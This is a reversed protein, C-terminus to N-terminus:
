YFTIPKNNEMVSIIIPSIRDRHFSELPHTRDTGWYINSVGFNAGCESKLDAIKLSWMQSLKRVAEAKEELQSTTNPVYFPTMPIITIYKENDIKTLSSYDIGSYYGDCKCYKYLLKSILVNFAGCYTDTDSNSIDVTGIEVNVDNQGGLVTVFDAYPSLANVRSDMWMADGYETTGGSMKTGGIGHNYFYQLGFYDKVYKQFFGQGTISDGISDGIKNYWYNNLPKCDSLYFGSYNNGDSLQFINIYDITQNDVANIWVSSYKIRIYNANSMNSHSFNTLAFVNQAYYEINGEEDIHGISLSINSGYQHAFSNTTKMQWQYVVDDFLTHNFNSIINHGNIRFDKFTEGVVFDYDVKTNGSILYKKVGKILSISDKIEQTTTKDEKKDFEEITPSYVYAEFDNLSDTHVSFLVYASNNPLVIWENVFTTEDYKKYDIVSGSNDIIAYSVYEYSAGTKRRIYGKVHIRPENIVNVKILNGAALGVTDITGDTKIAKGSLVEKELLKIVGFKDAQYDLDSKLEDTKEILADNLGSVQARVAEGATEYTTGDAATRIDSVDTNINNINSKINEIDEKLVSVDNILTVILDNGDDDTVTDCECVRKEVLLSFTTSTLKSNDADVIAIDCKVYGELELMWHKLPATITGDDNVVCKFSKANNDPRQADILATANSNVFLKNGMDTLKIKLFRSNLDLQKAVIANFANKRAVDVTIEQTIIM